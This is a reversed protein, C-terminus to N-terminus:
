YANVFKDFTYLVDEVYSINDISNFHVAVHECVPLLYWQIEKPIDKRLHKEAGFNKFTAYVDEIPEIELVYNREAYWYYVSRFGEDTGYEYPNEVEGRYYKCDNLRDKEEETLKTHERDIKVM